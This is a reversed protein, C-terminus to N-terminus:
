APPELDAAAAPDLLVTLTGAEPGSAPQITDGRGASRRRVGPRRGPAKDAGRILFLVARAACLAPVTLTIRPVHPDLGPEPVGVVARDRVAVAPKGPFMSATHGDDGIGLLVLDLPPM